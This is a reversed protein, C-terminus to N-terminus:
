IATENVQLATVIDLDVQTGTDVFAKRSALVSGPTRKRRKKQNLWLDVAARILQDCEETCVEPGNISIQLLSGLMKNSLRSRLRTKIRKISSAGREPWANTIPLCLIAEAFSALLPFLTDMQLLKKLVFETQTEGILKEPAPIDFRAMHFKFLEFEAVVESVKEPAYIMGIKAIEDKGYDLFAVSDPSPLLVPDFVTFLSFLPLSDKFREDLHQILAEVYKHVLNDVEVLGNPTVEVTVGQLTLRGNPKLDQVADYIAQHSLAEQELKMKAYAVNPAIHSFTVSGKQFSKSVTDLIPIVQNLIYIAGIFKFTNLRMFLGKGAADHHDEDLAKLTTLVAPYDEKLSKVAKGLSLWRTRCAKQIKRTVVKRTRENVMIGNLNMQVKAYLTTKKNANEFLSWLQRLNKEVVSVYNVSDNANSCALALRHCVCWLQQMISTRGEDIREEQKKRLKVGVGNKSGTFVSAGDSALGALSGM